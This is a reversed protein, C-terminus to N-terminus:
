KAKKLAEIEVQQEQIARVLIPILAMYNVAKYHLGEKKVGKKREEPTLDPPAVTPHVLLPVTSDLDQAIFGYQVGKPLNMNAFEDTKMEYSKPKLTMVTTLGENLPAINKKFMVDSPSCFCYGYVNGAFYAAAYYGQAYIGYGSGYGLLGYYGQGQVGISGGEGDVGVGGESQGYVGTGYSGGDGLVGNGNNASSYLGPNGYLTNHVVYGTDYNGPGVRGGNGANSFSVCLFLVLLIGYQRM